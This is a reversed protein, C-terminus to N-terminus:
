LSVTNPDSDSSERVANKSRIILDHNYEGPLVRVLEGDGGERYYLSIQEIEKIKFLIEGHRKFSLHDAVIWTCKGGDTIWFVSIPTDIGMGQECIAYVGKNKWADYFKQIHYNRRFPRHSVSTWNNLNHIEYQQYPDPLKPEPICAPCGYESMYSHIFYGLGLFLISSVVKMILGRLRKMMVPKM